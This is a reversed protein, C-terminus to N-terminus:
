HGAKLILDARHPGSGRKCYESPPTNQNPDHSSQQDSHEIQMTDDIQKCHNDNQADTNVKIDVIARNRKAKWQNLHSANRKRTFAM